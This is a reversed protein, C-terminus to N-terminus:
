AKASQLFYVVHVCPNRGKKESKQDALGAVAAFFAFIVREGFRVLGNNNAADRIEGAFGKGPCCQASLQCILLVAGRLVIEHDPAVALGGSGVLLLGLGVSLSPEPDFGYRAMAAQGHKGITIGGHMSAM